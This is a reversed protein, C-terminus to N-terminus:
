WGWADIWVGEHMADAFAGFNFVIPSLLLLMALVFCMKYRIKYAKTKTANPNKYGLLINFLEYGVLLVGLCICSIKLPRNIPMAFLGIFVAISIIFTIWMWLHNKSAVKIVWLLTKPKWKKKREARSQETGCMSCFTQGAELEFGCRQCRM